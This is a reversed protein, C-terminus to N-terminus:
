PIRRNCITHFLIIKIACIPQVCRENEARETYQLPEFPGTFRVDLPIGDCERSADFEDSALFVNLANRAFKRSGRAMLTMNDSRALIYLRIMSSLEKSSTTSYVVRQGEVM